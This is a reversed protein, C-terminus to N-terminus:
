KNVSSYQTTEKHFTRWSHWFEQYAQIRELRSNILDGEVCEGKANWISNTQDDKIADSTQDYSFTLSDRNWVHFSASDPQVYILLSVGGLIDNLVRKELLENWDYARSQNKVTVGIVWSKDKWSLSDRYELHSEITGRDFGELKKYKELYLSDPQMIKSSPYLNLWSRLSMQQTPFEQLVSGMLPGIIAEGNAQRWWSKTSTDEFMANFHDMGVLRFNELKGNVMPSFIRGTRCVTCYTVMVPVGGVSDRVQHHYGIIEIPYAKAEGNVLIGVVLSSQDVKNVISSSFVVHTPQHFMKDALFRFNFMYLVVGYLIIGAGLPAKWRVELKTFAKAVSGLLLIWGIIRLVLINNQLFYAISISEQQQSGPFPMIFYVRLIEIFILYVISLVIVVRIIKM